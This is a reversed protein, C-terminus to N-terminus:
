SLLLIVSSTFVELFILDKMRRGTSRRLMYRTKPAWKWTMSPLVTTSKVSSLNFSCVERELSSRTIARGVPRSVFDCSLFIVVYQGMSLQKNVLRNLFSNTEEDPKFPSTEPICVCSRRGEPTDSEFHLHTSRRISM